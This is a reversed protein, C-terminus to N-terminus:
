CKHKLDVINTKSLLNKNNANSYIKRIKRDSYFDRRKIYPMAKSDKTCVLMCGSINLIAVIHEDDFDAETCIEKLRNVDNDILQTNIEIFKGTKKYESILKLYKPMKSLENKYTTGGYVFCAYNQKRIWHLVPFFEAHDSSAPDFVSHFANTDLVIM